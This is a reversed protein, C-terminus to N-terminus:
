ARDALSTDGNWGEFDYEPMCQTELRSLDRNSLPVVLPAGGLIQRVVGRTVGM